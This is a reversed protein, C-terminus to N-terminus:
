ISAVTYAKHTTISGDLPTSLFVELFPLSVSFVLVFSLVLGKEVKDTGDVAGAASAWAEM